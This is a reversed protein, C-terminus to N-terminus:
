VGEPCFKADVRDVADLAHVFAMFMFVLWMAGLGGLGLVVLLSGSLTWPWRRRFELGYALELVRVASARPGLGRDRWLMVM